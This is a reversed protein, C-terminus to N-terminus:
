DGRGGYEGSESARWADPRQFEGVWMGHGAERAAAEQAEYEGFAIAHGTRVMELGLDLGNALCRAVKRGYRDAEAVTCSIEHGVTMSVLADRAEAGCRYDLGGRRCFQRLEPADIGLIRIEESGLRLSDGDMVYAREVITEAQRGSWFGFAMLVALM